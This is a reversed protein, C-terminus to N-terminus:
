YTGPLEAMGLPGVLKNPNTRGVLRGFPVRVYPNSVKEFDCSGLFPTRAFYGDEECM